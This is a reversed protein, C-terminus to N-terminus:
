WSAKALRQDILDRGHDQLPRRDDDRRQDREHGVLLLRELAAAHGDDRQVAPQTHGLPARRERPEFVAAAQDDKGRGLREFQLGHRGQQLTSAGRQEADVFGVADGFPPVVEPRGVQSEAGDALLKASRRGERERGRRRWAHAVVHGSPKAKSGTTSM